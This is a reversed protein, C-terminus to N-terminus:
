QELGGISVFKLFLEYTYLFAVERYHGHLWPANVGGPWWQVVNNKKTRFGKQIDQINYNQDEAISSVDSMGVALTLAPFSEALMRNRNSKAFDSGGLALLPEVLGGRQFFPITTLASDSILNARSYPIRERIVSGQEDLEETYYEEDQFNFGWGGYNAGNYGLVGVSGKLREQM